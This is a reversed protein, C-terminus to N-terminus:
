FFASGLVVLAAGSRIFWKRGPLSGIDYLNSIMWIAVTLGLLISLLPLVYDSNMFSIFFIVTGMLVFGAMEKFRVMWMGPKPLLKIVGPFFAAAIYPSSMGLGMLFWIAYATLPPQKVTWALTVGLFPGLCPTALLTALM